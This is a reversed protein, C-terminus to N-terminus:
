LWLVDEINNPERKLQRKEGFEPEWIDMYAHYCRVFSVVKISDGSGDM